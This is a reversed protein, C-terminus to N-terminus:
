AQPPRPAEEGLRRKLPYIGTSWISLFCEHKSLWFKPATLLTKNPKPRATAERPFCQESASFSILGQEWKGLVYVRPGCFRFLHASAGCSRRGRTAGYPMVM